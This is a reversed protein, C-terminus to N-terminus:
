PVLRTYPPLPRLVGSDPQSPGLIAGTNPTGPESKARKREQRLPGYVEKALRLRETTRAMYENMRQLKASQNNLEATLKNVLRKQKAIKMRLAEHHGHVAHYEQKAERYVREEPTENECLKQYTAKDM